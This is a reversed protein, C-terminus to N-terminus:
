TYDYSTLSSPELVATVYSRKLTWFCGQISKSELPGMDVACQNLVFVAGWSKRLRDELQLAAESAKSAHALAQDFQQDDLESTYVYRQNLM